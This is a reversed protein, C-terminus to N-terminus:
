LTTCNSGVIIGGTINFYCGGGTDYNATVGQLNNHYYDGTSTLNINGNFYSEGNNVWISKEHRLGTGGSYGDIYLGYTDWTGTGLNIHSGRLINIGRSDLVQTGAISLGSGMDADYGFLNTTGGTGTLPNELNSDFGKWTRIGATQATSMTGLNIENGSLTSSTDPDRSQINGQSILGIVAVADSPDDATFSLIAQAGETDLSKFTSILNIFSESTTINVSDTSGTLFSNNGFLEGGVTLNRRITVNNTFNGSNFNVNASQNLDQDNIVLSHLLSGNGFLFAATLNFDGLNVDRSNETPEYTVSLNNIINTVNNVTVNVIVDTFNACIWSNLNPERYFFSNNQSCVDDLDDSTLRALTFVSLMLFIAILLVGTSYRHNFGKKNM